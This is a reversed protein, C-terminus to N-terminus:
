EPSPAPQQAGSLPLRLVFTAGPGDSRDEVWLRGGHAGVFERAIALGLGTGHEKTTFFPAFIAERDAAAVGPGRDSVLIDATGEVARTRVSVVSGAPSMEIANRIVNGLAQKIKLKDVALERSPGRALALAVGKEAAFPRCEEISEGVIQDLAHGYLNLRLDRSFVLLDTLVRNVDGLAGEIAAANDRAQNLTAQADGDREANRILDAYVGIVGLQHLIQHSVVSSMKGIASLRERHELERNLHELRRNQEELMLRRENLRKLMFHLGLASLSWVAAGALGHAHFGYSILFIFPTLALVVILGIDALATRMGGPSSLPLLTRDPYIPLIALLGWCLHGGLEAVAIAAPSAIPWGEPVLASVIWCRIGLGLTFTAWEAITISRTAGNWHGALIGRASQWNRRAWAWPVARSLPRLFYPLAIQLVIIPPGGIYLFGLTVALQPIPLAVRPLVEVEPSYLVITLLAYAAYIPWDSVKIEALALVMVALGATVVAGRIASWWRQSM